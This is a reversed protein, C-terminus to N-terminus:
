VNLIKEFSEKNKTLDGKLLGSGSVLYDAGSEVLKEANEVSVGGDVSVKLDDRLTKVLTVLENTEELFPEGQVGLKKIGMCQVGDVINIYKKLEKIDDSVTVAIYVERGVNRVREICEKMKNTSSLHFIFKQADRLVWFDIVNEPDKVMLDVEFEINIERQSSYKKLEDWNNNEVFIGDVVDIQMKQFQELIKEELEFIENFTEPILAPILINNM